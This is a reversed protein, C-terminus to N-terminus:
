YRKVPGLTEDFWTNLTNILYELSPVHGGEYLVIRKPERLLKYLPEAQTKLSSDEDYKGHSMLKPVRIHPAFNIPNAEAITQTESKAIGAGPPESENNEEILREGDELCFNLTEDYYVQRCEPCKKM